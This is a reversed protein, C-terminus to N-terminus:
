VSAGEEGAHERMKALAGSLLRSVHMQSVGIREAIQSQTMNRAFRLDVIYQERDSLHAVLSSALLRQEVLQDPRQEPADALTGTKDIRYGSDAASELPTTGYAGGAELAELVEEETLGTGHAIEQPTPSRALQQALPGVAAGVALVREQLQRPVRLAWTSDRFYRRLEGLITPTAFAVFATGREPDFREIAKLLGITAVQVLDEEAVGRYRYRRALHHAIGLHREILRNRVDRDRSDCFTYFDSEVAGSTMACQSTDNM